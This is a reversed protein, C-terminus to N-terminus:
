RYFHGWRLCKPIAKGGAELEERSSMCKSNICRWWKSDTAIMPGWFDWGNANPTNYLATHMKAWKNPLEEVQFTNKKEKRPIGLATKVDKMLKPHAHCIYLSLKMDENLNCFCTGPMFLSEGNQFDFHWVWEMILLVGPNLIGLIITLYGNTTM